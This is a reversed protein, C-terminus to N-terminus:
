TTLLNETATTDGDAIFYPETYEECIYSLTEPKIPGKGGPFSSEMFGVFARVIACVPFHLCSSCARKETKKDNVM